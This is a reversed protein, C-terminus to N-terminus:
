GGGWRDLLLEAIRAHADELELFDGTNQTAFVSVVTPDGPGFIIGVDNGAIPPWDGTKHAVRARFRIRRPLRSDYFQRNLIGIMERTSEPSALEGALLQELLRTMERATSRGLWEEPTGEFAFSRAAAEEDTPFGMEYVERHTLSAHDPDLLEWVRRFLDGTSALVRTERYGLEEMTRNVRDMGVMELVIDTATNDSTIMMQTILDRITPELGPAFTQILGSGRRLDEPRVRYRAELDLRGSDADRYAQILIPVKITSLTNVPEDPRVSVEQGTSPHRAYMSTRAPLADLIAAVESGLAGAPAPEPADCGGLGTAAVLAFAGGAALNPGSGRPNRRLFQVGM